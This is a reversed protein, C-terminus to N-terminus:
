EWCEPAKIKREDGTQNRKQALIKEIQIRQYLKNNSIQALWTHLIKMCYKRVFASLNEITIAWIEYGSGFAVFAHILNKNLEESKWVKNKMM